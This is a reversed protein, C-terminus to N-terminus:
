ESIPNPFQQSDDQTPEVLQRGVLNIISMFLIESIPHNKILFIRIVSMYELYKLIYFIGTM